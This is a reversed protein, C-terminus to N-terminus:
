RESTLRHSHFQPSFLARARSAPRCCPPGRLCSPPFCPFRILPPCRLRAALTCSVRTPSPYGPTTERATWGHRGTSASPMKSAREGVGLTASVWEPGSRQKSMVTSSKAAAIVPHQKASSGKGVAVPQQLKRPLALPAGLGRAPSVSDRLQRHQRRQLSTRSPLGRCTM